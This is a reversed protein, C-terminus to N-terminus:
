PSLFALVLVVGALVAAPVVVAATHRTFHAFAMLLVAIALLIIKLNDPM